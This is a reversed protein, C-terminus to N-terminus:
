DPVFRMTNEQMMGLVPSYKNTTTRFKSPFRSDRDVRRLLYALIAALFYVKHADVWELHHLDSGMLKPNINKPPCTTSRNWIRANHACQLAGPKIGCGQSNSPYIDHRLLNIGRQTLASD